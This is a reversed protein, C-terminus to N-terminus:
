KEYFPFQSYSNIDLGQVNMTMKIKTKYLLDRPKKKKNQNLSMNEIKQEKKVFKQSIKHILDQTIINM